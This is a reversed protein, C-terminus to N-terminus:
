EPRWELTGFFGDPTVPRADSGDQRMVYVRSTGSMSHGNFAIWRSDSSWAPLLSPMTESGVQVLGTGNARMTWITQPGPQGLAVYAIHRGDPSWVPSENLSTVGVTPTLPASGDANVFAIDSGGSAAGRQYVLRAGSPSWMFPGEGGPSLSVNLPSSGDPHMTYLEGTGDRDTNFAIYAGDASWAPYQDTGPDNTLRLVGSGDANMVYIEFNGDRDSSFLLKAGDPSWSPAYDTGPSNTLNTPSTGDARVVFVDSGNAPATDQGIFALWEGDPSWRGYSTVASGTLRLTDSGDANVRYLAYSLGLSKSFALQQGAHSPGAGDGCAVLLSAGLMLAAPMVCRRLDSLFGRM